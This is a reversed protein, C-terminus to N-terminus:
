IFDNLVVDELGSLQSYLNTTTHASSPARAGQSGRSPVWKKYNKCANVSELVLAKMEDVAEVDHLEKSRFPPM